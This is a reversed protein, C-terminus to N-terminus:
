VATHVLMHRKLHYKQKFSWHCHACQFPREGTHTRIHKTLHYKLKFAKPCFYCKFRKERTDLWNNQKDVPTSIVTKADKSATESALRHTRDHGNFKWTDHPLVLADSAKHDASADKTRLTHYDSQYLDGVCIEYEQVHENSQNTEVLDAPEVKPTKLSKQIKCAHQADELCSPCIHEPLSDGKSVGYGSWQAIMDPISFGLKTKGNFINVLEDHNALCVRCIKEM